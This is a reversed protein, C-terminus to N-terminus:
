IDAAHAAKIEAGTSEEPKAAERAAKMLRRKARYSAESNTSSWDDESVSGCADMAMELSLHPAASADGPEDTEEELDERAEGM